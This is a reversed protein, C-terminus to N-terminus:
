LNSLIERDGSTGPKKTPKSPYRAVLQGCAGLIDQGMSKRIRVDVGFTRVIEQFSFVRDPDPSEYSLPRAENFPILNVKCPIGRLLNGLQYAHKDSDNIGKLMVYEFMLMKRSPLLFEVSADLLQRIPYRKNIPMILNRIEDNPANLSIALNVSVRKGLEKIKPVLGSTSVTIRRPAMNIFDDDMLTQLARVLNDLNDLPEGMGMFVINTICGDNYENVLLYQDLIESPTLNKIKGVTGTLCFTCGLACGVQSSICLTHRGKNPILVSEIQNGDLLSFLYKKTGDRSVQEDALTISRELTCAMKLMERFELSLNTMEDFSLVGRKYIWKGIQRSRFLQLGNQTVFEELEKPSLDRLNIKDEM